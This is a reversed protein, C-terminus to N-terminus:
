RVEKREQGVRLLETIRGALYDASPRGLDRAVVVENGGRRMKVLWVRGVAAAPRPGLAQAIMTKGVGVPGHLIVSEGAEVFCLTALDRIHV